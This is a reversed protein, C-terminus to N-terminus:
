YWALVKFWNWLSAQANNAKLCKSINNALITSFSQLKPDEPQVIM